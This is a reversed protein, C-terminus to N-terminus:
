DKDRPLRAGRSERWLARTSMKVNPPNARGGTATEVRGEVPRSAGSRRRVGAVRARAHVRAAVDVLDAWRQNWRQNRSKPITASRLPISPLIASVDDISAFKRLTLGRGLRRHEQPISCLSYLLRLSFLVHGNASACSALYILCM